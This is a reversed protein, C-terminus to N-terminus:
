LSKLGFYGGVMHEIIVVAAPFAINYDGVAFIIDPKTGVSGIKGQGLSVLPGFILSV